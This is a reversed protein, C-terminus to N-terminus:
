IKDQRVHAQREIDKDLETETRPQTGPLGPSHSPSLPEQGLVPRCGLAESCTSGACVREASGTAAPINWEIQFETIQRQDSTETSSEERKREKQCSGIGKTTGGSFFSTLSAATWDSDTASSLCISTGTEVAPISFTHNEERFCFILTVFRLFATILLM